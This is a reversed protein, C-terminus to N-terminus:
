PTRGKSLADILADVKRVIADRGRSYDALVSPLNDWKLHPAKQDVVGTIDQDFSVVLSASSVDSAQFLQPV